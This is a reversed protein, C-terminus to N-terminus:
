KAKLKGTSFFLSGTGIFKGHNQAFSFSVIRMILFPPISLIVLPQISCRAHFRRQPPRIYFLTILTSSGSTTLSTIKSSAFKPEGNLTVPHVEVFM